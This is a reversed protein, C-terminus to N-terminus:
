SSSPFRNILFVATLFSEVWLFLPLNAHILLTLSSEVMHRHKREVVGNQAPTNPCSVYRVIVQDELHQILDTQIFKGGGDCKFIKVEKSFQKEVM